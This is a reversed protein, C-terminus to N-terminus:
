KQTANRQVSKESREKNSRIIQKFEKQSITVWACDSGKLGLIVYLQSPQVLGILVVIGPVAVGFPDFAKGQARSVAIRGPYVCDVIGQSRAIRPPASAILVIAAIVGLFCRLWIGRQKSIGSSSDTGFTM